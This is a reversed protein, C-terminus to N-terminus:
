KARANCKALADDDFPKGGATFATLKGARQAVLECMIFERQGSKSATFVTDRWKWVTGSTILTQQAPAAAPTAVYYPGTDAAQAAVPTLVLASALFPAAALPFSIM